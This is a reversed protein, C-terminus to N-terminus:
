IALHKFAKGEKTIEKRIASYVDEVDVTKSNKDLALTCVYVVIKWINGGSLEYAALLREIEQPDSLTYSSPFASYFIQIRESETPMPFKIISNFRRSFAKDINRRFNTALIILGPYDEIRQLLYSINQNAYRDHADTIDTRKGWLADAEDFFLVWDKNEALQFLRELNKETQGIYKSVMQSLDIRYVEKGFEKGLLVATMTKGTGPPGYFLAHYGPNIKKGIEPDQRLVDVHQLWIRLDKIHDQVSNNLVMDRWDLGTQIRKAPFKSSFNPSKYKGTTIFGYAEESIFIGSSGFPEGDEAPSLGILNNRILNNESEFLQLVELGKYPDDGAIIFRATQVTPLIGRYSKGKKGGFLLFEDLDLDKNESFVGIIQQYFGPDFEPMAAILFVLYELRSLEPFLPVLGEHDASFEKNKLFSAELRMFIWQKLIEVDRLLKGYPEGSAIM